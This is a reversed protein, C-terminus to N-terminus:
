KYVVKVHKEGALSRLRHLLEDTPHVFWDNGLTIKATASATHYSLGVPCQGECFPKLTSELTQIFDVPIDPQKLNLLVSKAFVERAQDIDYIHEASMRMNGSYEDRGLKGEVVLVNDNALLAEYRAYVKTFICIEMRATQDDLTLFAIKGGSQTPRTRIEVVLGAIVVARDRGRGGASDESAMRSLPGSVIQSLEKRYSDIPHRTLYLGLTAKEDAMWQQDDCEPLVEAESTEKEQIAGGFLDTQGTSADRLHQAASKIADPLQSMLTARNEGLADLAGSRIMAEYVRRTIRYSEARQCLNILSTFLGEHNREQILNSIVSEGVGKIAGLGYLITDDGKVTFAYGSENIAPSDVKIKMSRCEDILLVIKDTNDMDASLVAAMFAAPFHAKLWSTQYSILAY